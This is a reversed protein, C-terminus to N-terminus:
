PRAERSPLGRPLDHAGRAFAGHIRDARPRGCRFLALKRGRELRADHRRSVARRRATRRRGRCHCWGPRQPELSSFRGVPRRLRPKRPPAHPLPGRLARQFVRPQLRRAPLPGREPRTGRRARRGPTRNRGDHGPVLSGHPPDAGTRRSFVRQTEHPPEFRRPRLPHRRGRVPGHFPVRREVQTPGGADPERDSDPHLPRDAHFRSIWRSDVRPELDCHADPERDAGARRGDNESGCAVVFLCLCLWVCRRSM